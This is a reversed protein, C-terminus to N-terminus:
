RIRAKCTDLRADDQHRRFRRGGGTREDRIDCRLFAVQPAAVEIWVRGTGMDLLTVTASEANKATGLIRVAESVDRVKDIASVAEHVISVFGTRVPHSDELEVVWEPMKVSIERIPFEYLVGGLVQMIDATSMNLCDVPIVPVDYSRALAEGLTRTSEAEPHTSNLVVIFPKGLEKLEAIVRREADIYAERGIETISGDTIVVLGITSHEQIM